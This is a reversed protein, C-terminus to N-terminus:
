AKSTRKRVLRFFGIATALLPLSAPAPVPTPDLTAAWATEQYPNAASYGWGVVTRGDASVAEASALIWGDLGTAGQAILLDYIQQPDQDGFWISAGRAGILPDGVGAWGVVVQGDASVDNARSEPEPGQHSSGLAVMGTGATWRFAQDFVWKLTHGEGGDVIEGANSYGVIVSGDASAGEARSFYKGGPLDGLGSMQGSEWRFAETGLLHVISGDGAAVDGEFDSMGVVVRGDASIGLAASSTGGPLYGLGTITGGSYQVAQSDGGSIGVAVSGDASVGTAGESFSNPPLTGLGVMGSGPTWRFAQDTGVDQGVVTNGDSSVGRALSTPNPSLGGLYQIGTAATWRFAQSRGTPSGVGVIVSGNASVDYAMSYTGAGPLAGLPLFTATTAIGPTALLTLLGPLQARHSVPM